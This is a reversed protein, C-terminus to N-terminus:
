LGSRGTRMYTLIARAYSQRKKENLEIVRRRKQAAPSSGPNQHYRFYPVKTGWELTHSQIREVHEPDTREVLSKRMRDTLRLIALYRAPRGNIMKGQEVMRRKRKLYSDKLRPWGGSAYAGQTAFQLRAEKNLDRAIDRLVNDLTAAHKGVAEIERDLQVEDAVTLTFRM